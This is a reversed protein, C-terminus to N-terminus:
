NQNVGKDGVQLLGAPVAPCNNENKHKEGSERRVKDVAVNATTQQEDYVRQMGALSASTVIRASGSDGNKRLEDESCVAQVVM